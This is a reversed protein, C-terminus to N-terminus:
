MLEVGELTQNKLLQNALLELGVRQVGLFEDVHQMIKINDLRARQSIEKAIALDDHDPSISTPIAISFIVKEACPGGYRIWV